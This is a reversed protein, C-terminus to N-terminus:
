LSKTGSPHGSPLFRSVAFAALLLGFAGMTGWALRRGRWHLVYRLALLVLLLTWLMLTTLIKPDLWSLQVLTQQSHMLWAGILVGSTVLPFALLLARRHMTDLRELSLLKVGDGPLKKQKLRGSQVVYMLSAVFAITLGVYGLVLFAIHSWLWLLGATEVQMELSKSVQFSDLWAVIVLLLIVPLIFVGWVFRRYHWTGSFYFVAMVLSLLLLTASGGQFPVAHGWVYVVHAVLGALMMGRVLWRRVSGPRWLQWLELGLVVAYSAAFCLITVGHFNMWGNYPRPFAASAQVM